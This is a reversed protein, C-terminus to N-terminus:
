RMGQEVSLLCVTVMQYLHSAFVSPRDPEMEETPRGRRRIRLTDSLSSCWKCTSNNGHVLLACKKHRWRDCADVSASEPHALPYVSTKPGGGCIPMEHLSQLFTKVDEITALDGRIHFDDVSVRRGMVAVTVQMNQDIDVVKTTVLHTSEAASSAGTSMGRLKPSTSWQMETFAVNRIGDTDRRHYGWSISPLVAPASLEFLNNFVRQQSGEASPVVEPADVEFPAADASESSSRGARDGDSDMLDADQASKTRDTRRLRKQRPVDAAQRVAPRKRHKIPKSLHAPCDPFISPVADDALRALRPTSM